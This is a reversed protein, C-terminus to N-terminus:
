EVEKRKTIPEIIELEDRQTQTITDGDLIRLDWLYNGAPIDTDTNDLIIETEGQTPDTHETINKQILADEDDSSNIDCKAKVTFLLTIGTIDVPEGNETFNVKINNDTGRIISLM